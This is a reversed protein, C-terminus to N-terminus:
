IFKESHNSPLRFISLAYMKYILLGPKKNLKKAM